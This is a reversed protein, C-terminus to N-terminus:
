LSNRRAIAALHALSPKPTRKFTTRDVAALGFTQTWHSTWEFNDILSWHFYGKIPVGDSIAAQVGALTADIYRIRQADDATAIGSESMYVPLGIREHAYRAMAGVAQPFVEMGRMDVEGDTPGPMAGQEDVLWRVYPQVGVFDGTKAAEFWDDYVYRLVEDRRSREGVADIQQVSLTVGVPLNGREAKVAEVGKKHAAILQPLSRDPDATLFCSYSSSGATKAALANMAAQRGVVDRATPGSAKRASPLWAFLRPVNAENLTFAMHMLEALHKAARAVYRAYLDPAQPNEWGGKAAFWQPASFHNFTVAPRVGAERVAAIMRRYYDLEALSFQGEEPEIRSWEISFRYAGLGASRLLAIDEDYRHYSDCADGSPVPFLSPKLSEMFWLDSSANNGEIQHGATAAGWLFDRPFSRAGAPRASKAKAPGGALTAGAAIASAAGLFGRRDITPKDPM